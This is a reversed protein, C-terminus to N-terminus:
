EEKNTGWLVHILLACVFLKQCHNYTTGCCNLNTEAGCLTFMKFYQHIVKEKLWDVNLTAAALRYKKWSESEKEMVIPNPQAEVSTRNNMSRQFTLKSLVVRRM